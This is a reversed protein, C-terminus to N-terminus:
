KKFVDGVVELYKSEINSLPFILVESKLVYQSNIFEVEWEESEVNINKYNVINGEYIEIGNKDDKGTYQGVSEKYVKYQGNETYLFVDSDRGMEKKYDEAFELEYVGFGEVYQNESVLEEVSYGRVKIERM